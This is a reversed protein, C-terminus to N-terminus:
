NPGACHIFLHTCSHDHPSTPAGLPSGRRDVTTVLHFAPATPLSGKPPPLPPPSPPPSPPPFPSPHSFGFVWLSLSLPSPRSFGLVWLSLYIHILTGRVGAILCPPSGTRLRCYDLQAYTVRKFFGRGPTCMSTTPSPVWLGLTCRQNGSHHMSVFEHIALHGPPPGGCTAIPPAPYPRTQPNPPSALPCLNSTAPGVLTTRLVAGRFFVACGEIKAFQLEVHM